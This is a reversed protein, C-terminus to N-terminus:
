SKRLIIYLIVMEGVLFAISSIIIITKIKLKAMIYLRFYGGLFLFILWFCSMVLFSPLKSIFSM